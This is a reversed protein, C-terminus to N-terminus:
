NASNIANKIRFNQGDTERASERSVLAACEQKAVLFSQLSQQVIRRPRHLKDKCALRMWAIFCAFREDLFYVFEAAFGPQLITDDEDLVVVTVNRAPQPLSDIKPQVM